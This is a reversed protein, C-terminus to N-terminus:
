TPEPLRVTFETGQGSNSDFKITGGLAEVLRKVVALGLGQGKSKTTFLPTFLKSKAEEPIGVGSDHVQIIITQDQKRATITLKGEGPMAQIGNTILNTLIRRLYAIDTKIPKADATILIAVEIRKPVNIALLTGAVIEALDADQISPRLPRTYDQLDSVIKNIYMLNENISDISELIANKSEGAPMLKTEETILYMDGTIAQLPNRIDHGVMGATQGIGALRESDKLQQARQEALEEMQSAYEELMVANEELKKQARVRAEETQKLEDIDSTYIRINQSHPVLFFQQYYWHNGIQIERAYANTGKARFASVANEWDTFFPHYLGATKLDPFLNDTAPNAFTLKGGLTVEIIPLPNLMPFSALRAIEAEARKRETIDLVQSLISVLKGNSDYIASNYWECEAISGDKRYNRNTSVNSPRKGSLMDASVKEVIKADEKYVWPIENICKGMIEEASWGFIRTAEKSWRIVRFQPDFEIVAVPANNMHAELRQKAEAIEQETKKRETLDVNSELISTIEGAETKEALWWSQVTVERGSKTKHILEGLWRKERNLEDLIEEFPQSFKTQFLDQTTKGIAEKKTWGYIKEAGKSWFTIQGSPKRVIIADPSLDILAAQRELIVENKKRETIDRFVLVVGRIRGEETIIPAGSDDIPVETEDKRVLVTHNGLGVIIGLKLVKSVPSEVQRRTRENVIRFVSTIPKQEAESFTWGTLQEAVSNMFTIKGETDTAIVADGISSLTTSWRQQSELLAEEAKKRETIDILTTLLHEEGNLYFKEVSLITPILKGTKTRFIMEQNHIRGEKQLVRLFKARGGPEAFVNIEPSTHGIIEQRTYEFLQLFTENVDIYRGDSLKTIIVAAPSESFAKSFREESQRLSEAARKREFAETVIPALDELALLENDSYGGERNGVAIMGSVKGHAKLPVGLFSQLPPHGKPVGISAPHHAPDNTYLSKGIRLVEGYLGHIKFNGLSIRHGDAAIIKCADWGPNSIAIDELGKENIEGIFGFKSQTLEEAVSLCVEGLREETETRLAAEMVRNIGQQILRQRNSLEDAKKRETIDEFISIFYGKKPSYASIHYWKKRVEAYRECVIPKGTLAVQGYVNIWDAPDSRLNPLVETALKGVVSERSVGNIRIYADNIDLYIWDIPKGDKDVIVKCYAFGESIKSFVTQIQSLDSENKM